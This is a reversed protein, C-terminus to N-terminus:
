FRFRKWIVKYLKWTLVIGKNNLKIPNQTKRDQLHIFKDMKKLNEPVVITIEKTTNNVKIDGNEYSFFEYKNIEDIDSLNKRLEYIQKDTMDSQIVLSMDYKFLTGYQGTLIM